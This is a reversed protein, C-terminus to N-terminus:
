GLKQGLVLHPPRRSVAAPPLFLRTSVKRERVLYMYILYSTIPDLRAKTFKPEYYIFSGMVGDHQSNVNDIMKEAAMEAALAVGFESSVVSILDDGM